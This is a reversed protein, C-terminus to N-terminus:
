ILIAKSMSLFARAGSCMESIRDRMWDRNPWVTSRSLRTEDRVLFTARPSRKRRGALFVKESRGSARHAHKGHEEGNGLVPAVHERLLAGKFSGHPLRQPGEDTQSAAAKRANDPDDAALVATPARLIEQVRAATPLWLLQELRDQFASQRKTRLAQDAHGEVIRPQALASAGDRLREILGIGKRRRKVDM